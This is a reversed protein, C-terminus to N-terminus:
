GPPAHPMELGALFDLPLPTARVVAVPDAYSFHNAVVILPGGPPLHEEGVIELDTLLALAARSWLRLIRRIFLRRPYPFKEQSLRNGKGPQCAPCGKLKIRCKVPVGLWPISPSLGGPQAGRARTEAASLAAQRNSGTGPGRPLCAGAWQVAFRGAHCVPGM